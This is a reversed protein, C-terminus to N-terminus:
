SGTESGIIVLEFSFSEIGTINEAVHLTLTVPIAHGNDVIKAEGDWSFTIYNEAAPPTWNQVNHSLIMPVTGNNKVYVTFNKSEGPQFYGWDLFDVEKTCEADSYVSVGITKIYGVNNTTFSGSIVGYAIFAVSFGLIFLTLMILQRYSLPINTEVM